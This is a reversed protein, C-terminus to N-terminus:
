CGALASYYTDDDGNQAALRGSEAEEAKIVAPAFRAFLDVALHFYFSQMAGLRAGMPTLYQPSPPFVENM